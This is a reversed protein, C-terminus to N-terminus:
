RRTAARKILDVVAEPQSVYIAHSGAPEREHRPAMVARREVHEDIRTISRSRRM